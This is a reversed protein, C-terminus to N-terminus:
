PLQAEIIRKEVDLSILTIAPLHSGLENKSLYSNLSVAGLHVVLKYLKQSSNGGKTRGEDLWARLTIRRSKAVHEPRYDEAWEPGLIGDCWYGKITVLLAESLQWELHKLFDQDIM